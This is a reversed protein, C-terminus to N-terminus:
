VLDKHSQLIGHFKREHEKLSWDNKMSKSCLSCTSPTQNTHKVTIHRALNKKYMPKACVPCDIYMGAGSSGDQGAVMFNQETYEDQDYDQGYEDFNNEDLMMTGGSTEDEYMAMTGPDAVSVIPPAIPEAKVPVVEEVEQIDDETDAVVAPPDPRFRKPASNPEGSSRRRPRSESRSESKSKPQSNSSSSNNQTLGKVRLDEAVQLFSNLDEQAVNVEGHYMFNLVARLDKLSVGKLFVLPHQHPNRKLVSRFFPSCASLIVKHAQMQEDECAITIDFFEKEERIDRFASSINREFDNWKLCFKEAM